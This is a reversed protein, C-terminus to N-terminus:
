FLDLQDPHVPKGRRPPKGPLPGSEEEGMEMMMEALEMPTAHKAYDVLIDFVEVPIVGGEVVRKRLAALERPPAAKIQLILGMFGRIDDNSLTPENGRPTYSEPPPMDEDMPDDFRGRRKSHLEEVKHLLKRAREAVVPLGAATADKVLNKLFSGPDYVTRSFCRLDDLVAVALRLRPDAKSRHEKSLFRKHLLFILHDCLEKFEAGKNDSTVGSVLADALKLVAEPSEKKFNVAAMAAELPTRFQGKGGPSKRRLVWYEFVDLLQILTESTASPLAAKWRAASDKPVPLSFCICFMREFYVAVLPHPAMQSGEERAEACGGHQHSAGQILRMCWRSRAQVKAENVLHPELSAWEDASAKRKKEVILGAKAFVADEQLRTDLPDLRLAKELIGLANSFNKAAMDTEAALVLVGKDEEFRQCMESLLEQRKSHGGTRDLLRCLGLYPKVWDPRLRIAKEFESQAAKPNRVLISMQGPIRASPVLTEDAWKEAMWLRALAETAPIIEAEEKWQKIYSEFLPSIESDMLFNLNLMVCRLLALFEQRRGMAKPLDVLIAALLQDRRAESLDATAFLQDTLTGAVNSVITPFKGKSGKRLAHYARSAEGKSLCSEAKAVAAAWGVDEGALALLGFALQEDSPQSAPAHSERLLALYPASARSLLASPTLSKFGRLAKEREGEHSFIVARLFSKWHQLLSRLSLPRLLDQAEAFHGAGVAEVARYVAILDRMVPSPEEKSTPLNRGLAEAVWADVRSWDSSAMEEGTSLRSALATVEELTPLRPSVSALAGAPTAGVTREKQAVIEKKLMEVVEKPAITALYSIVQEAESIQKKSIMELALGTNAEILLPLFTAKDAKCGQKAEDRAKRWQKASLLSRVKDTASPAPSNSPAAPKM